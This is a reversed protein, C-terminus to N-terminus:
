AARPFYLSFTTGKGPESEVEIGGRSQTVIGHVTALGLGTGQGEPKTTFFPEFLHEVIAPDIGTGTDSVDVRVYDGPTVGLDLARDDDLYLDSVRFRLTGGGPMADRANIALNVIIQELQSVDALVAAADSRPTDVTIEGGLLRRLMPEIATLVDQVRLVRPALVQRRSFALLQHTLAAARESATRIQALDDLEPSGPLLAEALLDCNGQIVTLLNNFDHAIGGALKGVAELKQTRRFREESQVLERASARREDVAAAFLLSSTTAVALFLYVHLTVAWASQPVPMVPWHGHSALWMTLGAIVLSSSAAGLAGFRLAAWFLFPFVIYAGPRIIDTRHPALAILAAVVLCVALSVGEIKRLSTLAPRVRKTDAWTLIVPAVILMGLGDGAWWEFWARPYSSHFAAQLVTAGVFATAANCLITACVVFSLVGRVTTWLPRKDFIASLVHAAVLSELLNALASLVALGPSFGNLLDSPISGACVGIAIALWDRPRLLLLALTVGSAPWLTVTHGGLALAYGFRACVFYAGAAAAALRV